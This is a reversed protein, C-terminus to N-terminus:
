LNKNYFTYIKNYQLIINMKNASSFLNKFIFRCKPSIKIFVPGLMMVRSSQNEPPVAKPDPVASELIKVVVALVIVVAVVV